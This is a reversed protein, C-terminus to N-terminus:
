GASWGDQVIQFSVIADCLGVFQNFNEEYIYVHIYYM